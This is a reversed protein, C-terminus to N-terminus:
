PITPTSSGAADLQSVHCCMRLRFLYMACMGAPLEAGSGTCRACEARLNQSPIPVDRVSRCCTRSQFLHTAFVRTSIRRRFAYMVCLGAALEAASYTCRACDSQSACFSGTGRTSKECWRKKGARGGLEM